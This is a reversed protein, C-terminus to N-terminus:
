LNGQKFQLRAAQAETLGGRKRLHEPSPFVDILDVGVFRANKWEKVAETMWVGRGCGLDLVERAKSINEPNVFLPVRTGM